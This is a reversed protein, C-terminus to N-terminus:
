FPQGWRGALCSNGRGQCLNTSRSSNHKTPPGTKLLCNTQLISTRPELAGLTGADSLSLCLVSGLGFLPVALKTKGCGTRNCAAETGAAEPADTGPLLQGSSRELLEGLPCSTTGDWRGGSDCRRRGNKCDRNRGRLEPTRDLVQLPMWVVRERHIMEQSGDQEAFEVAHSGQVGAFVGIVGENSGCM